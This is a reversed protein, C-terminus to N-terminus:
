RPEIVVKHCRRTNNYQNHLVGIGTQAKLLREGGPTYTKSSGKAGYIISNGDSSFTLTVEIQENAGITVPLEDYQASAEAPILGTYRAVTILDNDDNIYLVWGTGAGAFNANFVFLPSDGGNSSLTVKITDTSLMAPAPNWTLMADDPSNGDLYSYGGTLVVDGNTSVRVEGSDATTGNALGSGNMDDLFVPEPVPEPVPGPAPEPEPEFYSTLVADSALVAQVAALDNSVPDIDDTDGLVVIGNGDASTYSFRFAVDTIDPDYVPTKSSLGLSSMLSAIEPITSVDPGSNTGDSSLETSTWLGSRYTVVCALNWVVNVM